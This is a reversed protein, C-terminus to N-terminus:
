RSLSSRPSATSSRSRLGGGTIHDSASVIAAEDFRSSGTSLSPPPPSSSLSGAGATTTTWLDAEAKVRDTRRMWWVWAEAAGLVVLIFVLVAMAGLGIWMSRRIRAKALATAEEDGGEGAGPGASWNGSGAGDGSHSGDESERGLEVGITVSTTAAGGGGSGSAGDGAGSRIRRRSSDAYNVDITYSMRYFVVGTTDAAAALDPLSLPTLFVRFFVDSGTRSIVTYDAQPPGNDDNGDDSPDSGDDSDGATSATLANEFSVAVIGLSEVPIDSVVHAHVWVNGNVGFVTERQKFGPDEYTTTTVEFIDEEVVHSIVCFTPAELEIEITQNVELCSLPDLCETSAVQLRYTGGVTCTAEPVISMSWKQECPSGVLAANCTIGPVATLPGSVSGLVGEPASVLDFDRIQYPWDIITHWQVTAAALDVDWRLLVVQFDLNPNAEVSLATYTIEMDAPVAMLVRVFAVTTVDLGVVPGKDFLLANTDVTTATLDVEYLYYASIGAIASAARTLTGGLVEPLESVITATAVGCGGAGAAATLLSLPVSLDYLDICSTSRVSKTWYPGPYACATGSGMAVSSTSRGTAVPISLTIKLQGLAVSSPANGAPGSLYTVLGTPDVVSLSPPPPSGSFCVSSVRGDCLPVVTDTQYYGSECACSAAAADYVGRVGYAPGACCEGVCASVAVAFTNTNGAADAVAGVPVSLSVVGAESVRTDFTFVPDAGGANVLAAVNSSTEVDGLGFDTGTESWEIETALDFPYAVPIYNNPITAAATFSFDSIAPVTADYTLTPTAVSVAEANDYVDMYHVSLVYDDGDTLAQTGVVDEVGVSLPLANGNLTVTHTGAPTFISRLFVQADPDAGTHDLLLYLTGLKADETLTFTVDFAAPVTTAASPSDLVPVDTTSDIAFPFGASPVGDIEVVADYVGAPFGTFDFDCSLSTDGGILFSTCPTGDITVSDAGGAPGAGFGSGVFALTEVAAPDSHDPSVSSITPPPNYTFVQTVTNEVGDITVLVDGTLPADGLPVAATSCFIEGGALWNFTACPVGAVTVANVQGEDSAGFNAGQITLPTGGVYPGYARPLLATVTPPDLYAYSLGSFVQPPVWMTLDIASAVSGGGVAATVCEIATDSVYALSACSTKPDGVQLDVVQGENGPGFNAGTLTVTQGGTTPGFTRSLSFLAADGVYVFPLRNAVPNEVGFVQVNVDATGAARAPTTAEIETGSVWTEATDTTTFRVRLNAHSDPGFALGNITITDGGDVHGFTKSLSTLAPTGM